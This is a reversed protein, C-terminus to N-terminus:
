SGFAGSVLAEPNLANKRGVIGGAVSKPWVDM